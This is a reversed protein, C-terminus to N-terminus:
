FWARHSWIEKELDEKDQALQLYMSANQIALGGQNALASMLQVADDSFERPQSYYTRMLGLPQDKAKIPLNLMSFIGEAKKEKLYDIDSNKDIDNIIEVKNKLIRKFSEFSMHGKALYIESLGYSAVLKLEKKEESLLKISIAKADFAEAIEATMIHLIKKIDLSSNLNESLCLFLDSNRKIRDLFRQKQIAVGGQNALAGLFDIDEESFARTEGTYLSLTGLVNENVIIPVVLISAIGEAKKGEHNSVRPDSTADSVAFYGGEKLMDNIMSKAQEPAEHIYNESLGTQAAIVFYDADGKKLFLACAKGDMAQAINEVILNFVDELHFAKEFSNSVNCLSKFSEKNKGM